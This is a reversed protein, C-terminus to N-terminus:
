CLLHTIPEHPVRLFHLRQVGQSSPQLRHERHRSGIPSSASCRASESHTIALHLQVQRRSCSAEVHGFLTTDYWFTARLLLYSGCARRVSPRSPGPSAATTIGSSAARACSPKRWLRHREGGSPSVGLDAAPRGLCCAFQHRAVLMVLCAGVCVLIHTRLPPARARAAM